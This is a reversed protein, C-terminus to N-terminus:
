KICSLSNKRFGRNCWEYSSLLPFLILHCTSIEPLTGADLHLWIADWLESTSSIETLESSGLLTEIPLYEALALVDSQLNDVRFRNISEIKKL